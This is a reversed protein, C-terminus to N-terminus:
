LLGSLNIGKEQELVRLEEINKIDQQIRSALKFIYPKGELRNKLDALMMDWSGEYLEDRLLVLDRQDPSLSIDTGHSPGKGAPAAKGAHSKGRPEMKESKNKMAVSKVFAQRSTM